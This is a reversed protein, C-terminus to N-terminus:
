VPVEILEIDFDNTMGSGGERAEPLEFPKAFRVTLNGYIEHPYIFSKWMEHQEYFADLKMINTTPNVTLDIEHTSPNRYYFLGQFKLVFTRQTPQQPKIGQSWGGGFQVTTGGARRHRVTHYAFNFTEM